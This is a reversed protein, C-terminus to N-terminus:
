EKEIPKLTLSVVVPTEKVDVEVVEDTGDFIVKLKTNCYTRPLLKGVIKAPKGDVILRQAYMLGDTWEIERESYNMDMDLLPVDVEPTEAFSKVHDLLENHTEVSVFRFQSDSKRAPQFRIGVVKMNLTIVYLGVVTDTCFWEDIPHERVTTTWRKDEDDNLGCSDVQFFSVYYYYDCYQTRSPDFREIIEKFKM